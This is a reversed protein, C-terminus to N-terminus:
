IQKLFAKKDSINEDLQHNIFALTKNLLILWEIMSKTCLYNYSYIERMYENYWKVVKLYVDCVRNYDVMGEREYRDYQKGLLTVDHEM